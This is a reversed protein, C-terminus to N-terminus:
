AGIKRDIEELSNFQHLNKAQILNELAGLVEDRMDIKKVSGGWIVSDDLIIMQKPLGRIILPINSLNCDQEGLHSYISGKLSQIDSLNLTFLSPCSFQCNTLNTDTMITRSFYAGEFNANECNAEALCTDLFNAARFDANTFDGGTMDTSALNAGWFCAGAMKADDLYAGALNAKRLDIKELNIGQEVAQEVGSKVNTFKGEFLIKGEVSKLYM